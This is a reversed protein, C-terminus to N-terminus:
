TVAEPLTHSPLRTGPSFAAAPANVDAPAPALSSPAGALPHLRRVHGGPQPAHRRRVHLVARARPRQAASSRVHRADVPRPTESLARHGGRSTFYAVAVAEEPAKTPLWGRQVCTCFTFATLRSEFKLHSRSQKVTGNRLYSIAIVLVLRRVRPHCRCISTLCCNRLTRPWVALATTVRRARAGAGRTTGTEDACRCSM